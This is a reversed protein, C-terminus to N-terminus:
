IKLLNSICHPRFWGKEPDAIEGPDVGPSIIDRSIQPSNAVKGSTFKDVFIYQFSISWGLQVGM